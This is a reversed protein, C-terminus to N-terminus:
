IEWEACVNISLYKALEDFAKNEGCFALVAFARCIERTILSDKAQTVKIRVDTTDLSVVVSGETCEFIKNTPNRHFEERLEQELDQKDVLDTISNASEIENTSLDVRFFKDSQSCNNSCMGAVFLSEGSLSLEDIADYLDTFIRVESGRLFDVLDYYHEEIAIFVAKDRLVNHDSEMFKKM